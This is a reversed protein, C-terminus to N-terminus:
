SKSRIESLNLRVFSRHKPLQDNRQTRYYTLVFLFFDIGEKYNEFSKRELVKIYPSKPEEYKRTGQSGIHRKKIPIM